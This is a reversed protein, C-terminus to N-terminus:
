RGSGPGSGRRGGSAEPLLNALEDAHEEEVELISELLRRTTPDTTGVVAIMERYSEIAIREAVLNEVIMEEISACERYEAHSRGTITAPDFDPTGGLQTIRRAISDAHELEQQSHELFEDAAAKARLGHAMFHHRRYRLVCLLETALASDLMRLVSERDAEYGSTVAGERVDDRARARIAQVDLTPRPEVVASDIPDRM